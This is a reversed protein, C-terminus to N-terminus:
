LNNKKLVALETTLIELKLANEKGKFVLEEELLKKKLELVDNKLKAVESWEKNANIISSFLVM